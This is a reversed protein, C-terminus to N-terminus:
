GEGLNGEPREPFSPLHCCIAVLRSTGPRLAKWLSGNLSGQARPAPTGPPWGSEGRARGPTRARSVRRGTDGPRRGGVQAAPLAAPAGPPRPGHPASGRRRQGGRGPGAALPESAASNRRGRRGAAAPIPTRAESVQRVGTDDRERAAAPGCFQVKPNPCYVRDPPLLRCRAAPPLDPAAAGVPQTRKERESGAGRPIRASPAPSPRGNAPPTGCTPPAEPPCSAPLAEQNTFSHIRPRPKCPRTALAPPGRPGGPPTTPTLARRQSHNAGAPVPALALLSRRAGAAGPAAVPSPQTHRAERGGPDERTDGPALAGAQSLRSAGGSM